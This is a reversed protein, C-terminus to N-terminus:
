LILHITPDLRFGGELALTFEPGSSGQLNGKLLGQGNVVSYRLQGPASFEKEGIWVFPQDAPRSLDADIRSLDIRDENEFDLIRDRGRVGHGVELASRYLFLDSGAGGKYRDAGASGVLQDDGDGGDLLNAENSGSLQDAFRSGLLNEIGALTDLGGGGTNQPTLVSLDVVVGRGALAYSASDVGSGGDLLDEGDSSVLTDDGGFGWLYPVEASAILTDMAATGSRGNALQSLIDQATLVKRNHDFEVSRIPNWLNGPNNERFFQEVTISDNSSSNTGSSNTNSSDTSPAYTILLRDARRQFIVEQPLIVAEFKITGSRQSPNAALDAAIVDQGHGREFGFQNSGLGGYLLDSGPGGRLVDDGEDGYLRDQGAMGYLYDQGGLGHMSDDHISGTLSDQQETGRMARQLLDWTNWSTGDSFSVCEIPNHVHYPTDDQFFQEIRIQDGVAGTSLLLTTKDQDRSVKLKTPLVGADFIIMGRDEPKGANKARITDMGDGQAFLYRDRGSGGVLLDRGWGGRLWDDGDGGFLADNGRHGSLHDECDGGWILDHGALGDIRLATKLDGTLIDDGISPKARMINALIDSQRWEIGDAFRFLDVREFLYSSSAYRAVTLENGDRFRLVLDGKRQEVVELDRSTHNLFVATDFGRGHTEAEHIHDKGFSKRFLYTDNGLSGDLIDDGRGGDILDNAHHTIVHDNGDGAYLTVPFSNSPQLTESEDSGITIDDCVLWRLKLDEDRPSAMILQRLERLLDEGSDGLSKIALQLNTLDRATLWDETQERLYSLFPQVDWTIKEEEQSWTMRVKSLAESFFTHSNLLGTVHNCIEKFQTYVIFSGPDGRVVRNTTVKRGVFAELADVRRQNIGIIAPTTPHYTAGTWLYIISEILDQQAHTSVEYWQKLLRELEGSKDRLIAQHLSPVNGGGELDPVFALEPGSAIINKDMSQKQDLNFWVDTLAAMSGDSKMYKGEQRHQNGHWDVYSSFVYDLPISKIGHSAVDNLEGADATGDLDYDQWIRLKSWERDRHDIVKNADSDLEGLAQFGHQATGGGSLRFHNGFLEEGSDINGNQNKDYTLLGDDPAIWGTAEAFGNNDHDFYIGNDLGVTEIGDGDLDFALPSSLPAREARELERQIKELIARMGMRAFIMNPGFAMLFEGLGFPLGPLPNLIEKSANRLLDVFPSGKEEAKQAVKAFIESIWIIDERSLGANGEASDTVRWLVNDLMKDILWKTKISNSIGAAILDVVARGIAKKEEPSLNKLRELTYEWLFCAVELTAIQIAQGYRAQIIARNLGSFQELDENSSLLGVLGGVANGLFERTYRTAIAYKPDQEKWSGQLLADKLEKLMHANLISEMKGEPDILMIKKGGVHNGGLRAVLDDFRYFHTGDIGTLMRQDYRPLNATLGWEGGLANWTTLSIRSNMGRNHRMGIDYATFQALAGGLSHGVLHLRAEPDSLLIRDVANSIETRNEQYQPWGDNLNNAWDKLGEWTKLDETGRFSIIYNSSKKNKYIIAHLGYKNTIPQGEISYGDPIKKDDYPSFATELLTENTPKM